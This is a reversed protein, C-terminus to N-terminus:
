NQEYGKISIQLYPVLYPKFHDGLARQSHKILRVAEEVIDDLHSCEKLVTELYPWLNTFIDVLPNNDERSVLEQVCKLFDGILAMYDIVMNYAYKNLKRAELKRGEKQFQAVFENTHENLPILLPQIISQILQQCTAKDHEERVLYGFALMINTYRTKYVWTQVFEPKMVKQVLENGYQALYAANDQCLFM